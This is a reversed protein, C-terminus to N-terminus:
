NEVYVTADVSLGARLVVDTPPDIWAIRVPVRQVVKVFNGSANDAPLLSFSAGTGGSISEVKGSFTRHPYADIKLEAREGPHMKDLQTEKFNAVVYTQTPVLEVVPQGVGVLQGEHVSLKSAVGDTPAVIKTYSLQLKALELASEASRTRAQSLEANARAAAIQASIPASQAVRGAAESVRAQAARKGEQTATLQAKAQALTARASDFAAQANDVREQPVANAVRLEKARNLDTEAKRVDAESRVIQAEAAAVQAAASAVGVSSGSYAAKASSLNGTSTATVIDVQASAQAAQARASEVEAEAQKVRALYDADDIQAILEGAKVLQNEHIAVRVIQGAVRAGLPVLDATVQADDTSVQGATLLLTGGIGLLVVAVIGFLIAFPRRGSKKAPTAADTEAAGAPIASPAAERAPAVPESRQAALPETQSQAQV